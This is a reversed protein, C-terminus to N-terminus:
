RRHRLDDGRLEIAVSNSKDTLRSMIREGYKDSLEAMTLNSSVATHKGRTGRENILMFLYEVSINRYVPEVGLDDIVLFDLKLLDQMCPQQEVHEARFLAILEYSPLMKMSYGQEAIARATCGLLFTKGLGAVSRMFINPKEVDPFNNAYQQLYACVGVAQERQQDNPFIQADFDSFQPLREAQALRKAMRKAKACDCLRREYKGVYGTDHCITCAYQPELYDAPLGLQLLIEAQEQQMDERFRIREAEAQEFAAGDVAARASAECLKNYQRRLEAYAPSREMLDAMHGSAQERQRSLLKLYESAMVSDM